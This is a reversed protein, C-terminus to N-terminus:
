KVRATFAVRPKLARPFRDACLKPEPLAELAEVNAAYSHITRNLTPQSWRLGNVVNLYEHPFPLAHHVVATVMTGIVENSLQESDTDEPSNAAARPCETRIQALVGHLTAEVPLIRAVAEQVLRHNVQIYTKTAAADSRAALASSPALALTGLAIALGGCAGTRLRTGAHRTPTGRV